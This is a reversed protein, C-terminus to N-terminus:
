MIDNIDVMCMACRLVYSGSLLQQICPNNSAAKSGGGGAGIKGPKKYTVYIYLFFEIVYTIVAAWWNIVFMVACCLVAGFLSVWMNYIGYAPRWGLLLFSFFDIHRLFVEM